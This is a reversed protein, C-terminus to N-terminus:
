WDRARLTVLLNMFQSTPEYSIVVESARTSMNDSNIAFSQFFLDLFNDQFMVFNHFFRSVEKLFLVKDKGQYSLLENLINEVNDLNYQYQIM